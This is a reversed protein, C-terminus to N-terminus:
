VSQLHDSCHAYQVAAFEGLFTTDPMFPLLDLQEGYIESLYNKSFLSYTYEGDQRDKAHDCYLECFLNRWARGSADDVSGLDLGDDHSVVSISADEHLEVEIKRCRGVLAAELFVQLLTALANKAGDLNDNGFIVAPRCRVRDPGRLCKIREM